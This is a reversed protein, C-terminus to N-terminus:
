GLAVAQAIAFAKTAKNDLATQINGTVSSTAEEIKNNSNNKIKINAKRTQKEIKPQFEINEYMNVNFENLNKIEKSGLASLSAAGVATAEQENSKSIKIDCIDSLNQMFWDNETMGGDVRM